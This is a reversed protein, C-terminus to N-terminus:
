CEIIARIKIALADLAFPKILMDTRPPLPGDRAAAAEAYGTAFLVKLEPRLERAFEALQRGNMNPLGVDTMLLDIRRNTRLFAMATAVDPAELCYYGLEQLISLILLRVTADDEVVLITEGRGPPTEVGEVDPAAAAKTVSRALYLRVTTGKGVESDIHLHGHSQRAFGYIMSLGLGTGFGIPKTTFFPDCARAVVDPPMGTGTDSVSIAVYDGVEVDAQRRRYEADLRTNKTEITLQGGDPMADRANIALNLIANEFQNADALAPWLDGALKTQLKVSKGLTRHLLDEMNAIIQNIDNPKTDLSQRRAFALLRHTLAAARHAAASAGDLFRPVDEPRNSAIRRRIIDLSGLIGTLLNNFDHAIGGTLQGIAEMKQSQRLADQAQALEVSQAQQAHRLELQAMVQRALAELSGAQERTLGQPRPKTDIVCLTGLATGGPTDLRAGAYFRIHPQETVLTNQCTRPDATLDPIVLLGAQCIAHACVSQNLPTQCQDFGIRAKFWQRDSAVFSVLAVPTECIRSALMVIDDFGREPPTDLVDYQALIGLRAAEEDPPLRTQPPPVAEPRILHAPEQILSPHRM